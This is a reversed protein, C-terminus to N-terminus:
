SVVKFSRIKKDDYFFESWCVVWVLGGGGVFYINWMYEIDYFVDFSSFDM